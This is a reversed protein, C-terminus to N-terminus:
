EPCQKCSRTIKLAKLLKIVDWILFGTPCEPSEFTPIGFFSYIIGIIWYAFEFVSKYGYKYKDM